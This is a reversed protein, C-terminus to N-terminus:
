RGHRGGRRKLWAQALEHTRQYDAVTHRGLLSRLAQSHAPHRLILLAEQHLQRVREHSLSLRLGLQRYSAPVQDGFGYYANVIRQLRPPLADIMRCLTERLCQAESLLAPDLAATARPAGGQEGRIEHPRHHCKVARWIQRMIAPWAYTSFALGRHPDFGLIARWLGIRGAQLAETFPLDGLVQQRTVAQVLGDHRRMLENLSILCGMQAQEFLPVEDKTVLDREKSQGKM